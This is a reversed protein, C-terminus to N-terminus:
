SALVSNILAGLVLQVACPCQLCCGPSVVVIFNLFYRWLVKYLESANLKEENFAKVLATYGAERANDTLHRPWTSHKISEPNIHYKKGPQDPDMGVDKRMMVDNIIEGQTSAAVTPSKQEGQTRTSAIPQGKLIKGVHVKLSTPPYKGLSAWVPECVQVNGAGFSYCIKLGSTTWQLM